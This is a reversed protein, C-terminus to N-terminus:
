KSNIDIILVSLKIKELRRGLALDLAGVKCGFLTINCYKLM